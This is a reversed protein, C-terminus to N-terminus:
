ILVSDIGQAKNEIVSCNTNRKYPFLPDNATKLIIIVSIAYNSHKAIGGHYVDLSTSHTTHNPHYNM